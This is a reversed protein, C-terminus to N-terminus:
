DITKVQINIGNTNQRRKAKRWGQTKQIKEEEPGWLEAERERECACISRPGSKEPELNLAQREFDQCSQCCRLDRLECRDCVVLVLHCGKSRCKSLTDCPIQCMHCISVPDSTGSSDLGTSGRADFVYNRGRFLSDEPIKRGLRIEEDMWTLYAAIGGKLTCVRDGDSKEMNEQLFRAGKECRIGGTCYTMIQRTGAAKRAPSGSMQRKVYQPWQSFRRIPPRLAAEGTKPDMFYGIRSEYHNRVDLLITDPDNHSREHFDEPSLSEIQDWQAPIYNTVGMPTIESTVRVSAPAGGFVCACGGTTPKFFQSQTEQTSLDLGAFSWHSICERMYEEISTKTGGVTINFGEKAIRIKGGINLKQTHTTHFSALSSPDAGLAHYSAPLSPTAGFYRYFLLVVGDHSKSAPCTCTFTLPDSTGTPLRQERM